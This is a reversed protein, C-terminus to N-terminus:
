SEEAKLINTIVKYTSDRDFLEQACKRANEGMKERLFPDSALLHIADKISNPDEPKCNVGMRYREILMRYEENQQTNIVPKGAAAYDAHKNIISNATKLKLPNIVIDCQNLIACMQDYPLWGTFTVCVHKEHALKEVKLKNAGIGMIVFRINININELAYIVSELDYSAGITGVYGIWLEHENKELQCKYKAYEDFRMLSTGIYVAANKKSICNVQKARELYTESVALLYNANSYIKDAIYKFPAFALMSVLPIDVALRFAEPWLDQIDLLVPIANKKCYTSVFYAGTLSPIAIYILDPKKRNKIYKYANRGWIFHSYFRRISVNKIYGPEQILTVKYKLGSPISQRETKNIHSFTTTVLEVEHGNESLLQAIYIFRNNNNENFEGCFNALIVIDM